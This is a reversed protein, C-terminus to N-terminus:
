YNKAENQLREFNCCRSKVKLDQNSLTRDDSTVLSYLKEAKKQLTVRNSNMFQLQANLLDKYRIDQIGNIDIEKLASQPVPIMNNFNIAGQSGSNIKHFDKTNKMNRHKNKPSSMPAFYDYDDIKFIIGVYPRKGSKNQPVKHDFQKLFEIYDDKINYLRM